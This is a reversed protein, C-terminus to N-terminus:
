FGRSLRFQFRCVEQVSTHRMKQKQFYESIEGVDPTRSRNLMWIMVICIFVGCGIWFWKSRYLKKKNGTNGCQSGREIGDLSAGCLPCINGDSEFWEHCKPCQIQM